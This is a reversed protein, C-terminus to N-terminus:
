NGDLTCYSCLYKYNRGDLLLLVVVHEAGPFQLKDVVTSVAYEAYDRQSITSKSASCPNIQNV